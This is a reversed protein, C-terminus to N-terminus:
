RLAPAVPPAPRDAVGSTWFRVVAADGPRATAHGQGALRSSRPTAAADRARNQGMGCSAPVLDSMPRRHQEPLAVNIGANQRIRRRGKARWSDELRRM